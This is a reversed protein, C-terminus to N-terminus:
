GLYEGIMEMFCLNHQYHTDARPTSSKAKCVIYFTYEITSIIIHLLLEYAAKRADNQGPSRCFSGHRLGPFRKVKWADELCTRPSAHLPRRPSVPFRPGFGIEVM